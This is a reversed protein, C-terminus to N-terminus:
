TCLIFTYSIKKSRKRGMRLEFFDTQGNIETLSHFGTYLKLKWPLIWINSFPTEGM